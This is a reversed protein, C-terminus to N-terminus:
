KFRIIIPGPAEPKNNTGNARSRLARGSGNGATNATLKRKKKYARKRREAGGAPMTRDTAGDYNRDAMAIDLEFTQTCVSKTTPNVPSPPSKTSGSHSNSLFDTLECLRPHSIKDNKVGGIIRAREINDPGWNIEARSKNTDLWVDRLIDSVRKILLDLKEINRGQANRDGRTATFSLFDPLSRVPKYSLLNTYNDLRSELNGLEMQLTQKENRLIEAERNDKELFLGLVKEIRTTLTTVSTESDLLRNRYTNESVTTRDETVANTIPVENNPTNVYRRRRQLVGQLTEKGTELNKPDILQETVGSNWTNQGRELENVNDNWLGTEEPQGIIKKAPKPIQHINQIYTMAMELKSSLETLKLSQRDRQAQCTKLAEKAARQHKAQEKTWEVLQSHENDFSIAGGEHTPILEELTCLILELRDREEQVRLRDVAEKRLDEIQRKGQEIAQELEERLVQQQSELTKLNYEAIRYQTVQDEIWTVLQDHEGEFTTREETHSHSKVAEQVKLLTLRLTDREARIPGHELSQEVYRQHLEHLDSKLNEILLNKEAMKDKMNQIEVHSEVLGQSKVPCELDNKRSDGRCQGKEADNWIKSENTNKAPSIPFVSVNISHQPSGGDTTLAGMKESLIKNSEQLLQINVEADELSRQLGEVRQARSEDETLFPGSHEVHLEAQRKTEPDWPGTSNSGSSELVENLEDIEEQRKKVGKTVYALDENAQSLMGDKERLQRELGGIKQNREAIIAKLDGMNDQASQIQLQYNKFRERICEVLEQMQPQLTMPKVRVEKEEDTDDKRSRAESLVTSTEPRIIAAQRETNINSDFRALLDQFAAASHRMEEKLRELSVKQEQSVAKIDEAEQKMTEMSSKLDKCHLTLRTLCEKVIPYLFKIEERALHTMQFVNAALVRWPDFYDVFAEHGQHQVKAWVDMWYRIYAAFSLSHLNPLPDLFKFFDKNYEIDFESIGKEIGRYLHLRQKWCSVCDKQGTNPYEVFIRTEKGCWSNLLIHRLATRMMTPLKQLVCEASEEDCFVIALMQAVLLYYTDAKNEVVNTFM